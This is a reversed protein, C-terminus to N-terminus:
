GTWLMTHTKRLLDSNHCNKMGAFSAGKSSLGSSLNQKCIAHHIERLCSLFNFTHWCLSCKARCSVCRFHSYGRRAPYYHQWTQFRNTSFYVITEPPPPSPACTQAGSWVSTRRYFKAIKHLLIKEWKPRIVKLGKFGLILISIRM